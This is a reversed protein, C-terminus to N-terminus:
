TKFSRTFYRPEIVFIYDNGCLECISILDEWDYGEYDDIHIDNGNFCYPCSVTAIRDDTM